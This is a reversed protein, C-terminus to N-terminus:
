QGYVVGSRRTNPLESRAPNVTVMLCPTEVDECAWWNKVVSKTREWQEGILRPHVAGPMVNTM